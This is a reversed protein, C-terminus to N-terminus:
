ARSNLRSDSRLTGWNAVGQEGGKGADSVWMAYNSRALHSTKGFLMQNASLDTPDGCANNCFGDNLPHGLLEPIKAWGSLSFELLNFDEHQPVEVWCAM